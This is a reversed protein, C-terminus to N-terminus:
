KDLILVRNFLEDALDKALQRPDGKHVKGGTKAPPTFIRSVTTPSGKLGINSEDLELDNKSWVEIETQAAKLMNPFSAYRPENIEKEVTVLVPFDTTLTEAGGELKRAATLKKANPDVRRIEIACTLQAFGLRAAIGPGVQATDGDIAQKGCFIIDVNENSMMKKIAQSLIYSTALTDSGAFARDSLLIGRDAGLGLAKRISDVAKPPGMCLITIKGGYADKLKLAEEVAHIDYPNIISPIGERILNGTKPDVKAETTDPVEKLCVISNVM